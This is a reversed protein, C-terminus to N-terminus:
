VRVVFKKKSKKLVKLQSEQIAMEDLIETMEVKDFNHGVMDMDNISNINKVKTAIIDCLRDEYTKACYIIKQVSPTQSGARHIRGLAQKIDQGSWTPSILSM